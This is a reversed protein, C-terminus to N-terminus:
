LSRPRKYLKASIGTFIEHGWLHYEWDPHMEIMKQSFEKYQDPIPKPGIWIQHIIKPIKCM